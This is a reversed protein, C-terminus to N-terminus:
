TPTHFVKIFYFLWMNNYNFYHPFNMLLLTGPIVSLVPLFIRIM